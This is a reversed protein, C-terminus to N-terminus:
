FYGQVNQYQFELRLVDQHCELLSRWSGEVLWQRHCKIYLTSEPHAKTRTKHLLPSLSVDTLFFLAGSDPRISPVPKQSIHLCARDSGCWLLCSTLVGGKTLPLLHHFISVLEIGSAFDTKGLNPELFM